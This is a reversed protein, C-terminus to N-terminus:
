GLQGPTQATSSDTKPDGASLPVLKPGLGVLLWLSGVKPLRHELQFSRFRFSFQLRRTASLAEWGVPPKAEDHVTEPHVMGLSPPLFTPGLTSSEM